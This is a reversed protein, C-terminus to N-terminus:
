HNEGALLSTGTDNIDPGKVPMESPQEMRKELDGFFALGVKEIAWLERRLAAVMEKFQEVSYLNPSIVKARGRSLGKYGCHAIGCCQFEYDRVLRLTRDM